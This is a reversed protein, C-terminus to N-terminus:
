VSVDLCFIYKCLKLLPGAFQVLPNFHFVIQAAMVFLIAVM